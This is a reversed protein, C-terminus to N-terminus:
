KAKGAFFNIMAMILAGLSSLLTVIVFGYISSFKSDIKAQFEKLDKRVEKIEVGMEARDKELADHTRICDPRIVVDKMAQQLTEALSYQIILKIRAERDTLPTIEDM